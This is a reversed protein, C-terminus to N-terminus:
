CSNPAKQSVKFCTEPDFGYVKFPRLLKQDQYVRLAAEGSLRTGDSLAVCSPNGESTFAAWVIYAQPRQRSELWVLRKNLARFINV